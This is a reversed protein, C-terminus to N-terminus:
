GNSHLVFVIFLAGPIDFFVLSTSDSMQHECLTPVM